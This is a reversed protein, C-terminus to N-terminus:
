RIEDAQRRCAVTVVTKSNRTTLSKVAEDRKYLRTRYRRREIIPVQELDTKGPIEPNVSKYSRGTLGTFGQEGELFNETLLM